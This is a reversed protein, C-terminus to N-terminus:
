VAKMVSNLLPWYYGPFTLKMGILILRLEMLPPLSNTHVQNMTDLNWSHDMDKNTMFDHVHM